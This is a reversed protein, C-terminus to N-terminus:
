LGPRSSMSSSMCGLKVGSVPDVWPLRLERLPTMVFDRQLYRPHPLRLERTQRVNASHLILDLDITRPANRQGRRRGLLAEIRHLERLLGEPSLATHGVAVSNLFRPSGDPADVPDTEYVSSIRVVRMVGSLAQCAARLYRERDGLNSGLAIAVSSPMREPLPVTPCIIV